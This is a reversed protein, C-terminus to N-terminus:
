LLKLFENLLRQVALTRFQHREESIKQCWARTTQPGAIALCLTGVPTQSGDGDPGALGTTALGWTAQCRKKVSCAMQEATWASVVGHSILESADIHLLDSKTQTAYTVLGGRVFASSGPLATLQSLVLGGTCSEACAVTAQTKQLKEFINQVLSDTSNEM